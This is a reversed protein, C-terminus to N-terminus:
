LQHGPQLSMQRSGKYNNSRIKLEELKERECNRSFHGVEGCIDGRDSNFIFDNAPSAAACLPLGYEAVATDEKVKIM